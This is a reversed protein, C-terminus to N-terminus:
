TFDWEYFHDNLPKGWYAKLADYLEDRELHEITNLKESLLSVFRNIEDKKLCVGCIIEGTKHLAQRKNDPYLSIVINLLVMNKYAKMAFLILEYRHNEPKIIHVRIKFNFTNEESIEYQNSTHYNLETSYTSKGLFVMKGDPSVLYQSYEKKNEGFLLFKPSDEINILYSDGMRRIQSIRSFDKHCISISRRLFTDVIYFKDNKERQFPPPPLKVPILGDHYKLSIQPFLRITHKISFLPKAEGSHGQAFLDRFSFVEYNALTRYARLDGSTQDLLPIGYREFDFIEFPSSKELSEVIDGLRIYLESKRKVDLNIAFDPYGEETYQSTEKFPTGIIVKM